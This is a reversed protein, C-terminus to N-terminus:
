FEEIATQGPIEVRPSAAPLETLLADVDSQKVRLLRPGLKYARLRGSDIYNKITNRSVGIYAAAEVVTLYPSVITDLTSRSENHEGAASPRQADALRHGGLFNPGRSTVEKPM